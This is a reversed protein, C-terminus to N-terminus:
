RCEMKPVNFRDDQKFWLEMMDNGILKVPVTPAQGFFTSIKM